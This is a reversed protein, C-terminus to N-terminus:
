KLTYGVLFEVSISGDFISFICDFVFTDQQFKVLGKVFIIRSATPANWELNLPLPSVGFEIISNGQELRFPIIWLGAQTNIFNKYAHITGYLSVRDDHTVYGLSDRLKYDGRVFLGVRNFDENYSIGIDVSGIERQSTAETHTLCLWVFILLLRIM